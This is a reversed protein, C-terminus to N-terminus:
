RKDSIKGNIKHILNNIERGTFRIISIIEKCNLIILIALCMTALLYLGYGVFVSEAILIVVQLTTNITSVGVDLFKNVSLRRIIWIMYYGVLTSVAVVIVGYQRLFLFTIIVSVLAGVLTSVFQMVNKRESSFISGLFGALAGLFVSIFLYPTVWWYSVFEGSLLVEALIHSLFIIIATLVILISFYKKHMAKIYKKSEESGYDKLASLLWAQAFIDCIVTLISPLRLTASYIGVSSVGLWALMIYRSISSQAWWSIQNPILPMSYFVMEKRLSPNIEKTWYKKIHCRTAMYTIAIIDALTYSLLFGLVGMKLVLLFLLNLAVVIFSSLLGATASIKVKNIGRAFKHMLNILGQNCFMIPVFLIYIGISYFMPLFYLGITIFVSAVAGWLTIKLGTSFVCKKDEKEIFCFRLVADAIMGTLVPFLMQATTHVMDSIGYEETTLVSTYLPIMLFVLIKSGMNALAFLLTNSLLDKIRNNM